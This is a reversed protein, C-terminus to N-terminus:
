RGAARQTVLAEAGALARTAISENYPLAYQLTCSLQRLSDNARVAPLLADFVFAEDLMNGSCDLMRLHTNAPLADFLPHLGAVRLDCSSVDLETLAPANAAVLAGLAPGVAAPNTEYNWNHSLNLTRLGAHGTLAGLLAAAVPAYWLSVNHLTLATLTSCARLANAFLKM